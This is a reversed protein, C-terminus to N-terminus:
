ADLHLRPHLRSSPPGCGCYHLLPPPIQPLVSMQRSGRSQKLTAPPVMDQIAKVESPRPQLRTALRCPRPPPGVRCRFLVESPAVPPQGRAPSHPTPPPPRLSRGVYRQVRYHRRHLGRRLGMEHRRAAHRGDTSIHSPQLCFRLFAATSDSAASSAQRRFATKKPLRSRTSDRACTLSPFIVSAMAGGCLRCINRPTTRAHLADECRRRSAVSILPRSTASLPLQPPGHRRPTFIIASLSPTPTKHGGSGKEQYTPALTDFTDAVRDVYQLGSLRDAESAQNRADRSIDQPPSPLFATVLYHQGLHPESRLRTCLDTYADYAETTQMHLHPIQAHSRRSVSAFTHYLYRSSKRKLAGASRREPAGASRLAPAGPDPTYRRVQSYSSSRKM